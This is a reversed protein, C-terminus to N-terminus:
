QRDAFVRVRAPEALPAASLDVSVHDVAIMQYVDDRTVRDGSRVFLEELSIAPEALVCARVFQEIAPAVAPQGERLYDELFQVNRQYVWDIESSSRVRYYLGSSSACAEGPPCRWQGEKDRCYRNP